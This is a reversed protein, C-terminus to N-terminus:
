HWRDAIKKNVYILIIKKYIGRLIAIFWKKSTKEHENILKNVTVHSCNYIKAIERTSRGKEKFIKMGIIDAQSFKSKRGAGRANHKTKELLDKYEALMKENEELLTYYYKIVTNYKDELIKYKYKLENMEVSKQELIKKLTETSIDM